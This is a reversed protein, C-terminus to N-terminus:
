PMVQFIFISYGVMDTPTQNQFHVCVPQRSTGAWDYGMLDNVSVAYWGPALDPPMANLVTRRRFEVPIANANIGFTELPLPSWVKVFLPKAEPHADTWKRLRLLDQGWDVNSDLLHNRANLPGGAALNFFSMSYPFVCLSGTIGCVVSATVVLRVGWYRDRLKTAASSAFIYLFPFAPLLYRLYWNFGTQSSVLILVAMGPAILVFTNRWHRTWQIARESQRPHPWLDRSITSQLALMMAILVLALFGLPMKVCLAYIYYYWWGGRRHEGRLYSWRGEEFDHKQIDLGILYDAPVPIPLHGLWTGTFRNGGTQSSVDGHLTHSIFQYESLSRGTGAFGYGPNLICLGIALVIALQYSPPQHLQPVDNQQASTASNATHNDTSRQDAGIRRNSVMRWFLWLLPWLGFLLIWTSNPNM